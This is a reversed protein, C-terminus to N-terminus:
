DTQEFATSLHVPVSLEGDPENGEWTVTWEELHSRAWEDPTAAVPGDLALRDTEGDCTVVLDVALERDSEAPKVDVYHEITEGPQLSQFTEEVYIMENLRDGTAALQLEQIPEESVNRLNCVVKSYTDAVHTERGIGPDLRNAVAAGTGVDREVPALSQFRGDGGYEVTFPVVEDTDSLETEPAPVSGSWRVTEGPGLGEGHPDIDWGGVWTVDVGEVSLYDDTRNEVTGRVRVTRGSADVSARVVLPGDRVDVDMAGTETLHSGGATAAVPSLQSRGRRALAHARQYRREEGRDFSGLRFQEGDAALTLDDIQGETDVALYELFAETADPEDDAVARRLSVAPSAGAGATDGWSEQRGGGTQRDQGGRGGASQGRPGHGRASGGARKDRGGPATAAAFSNGLSLDHTDEVGAGDLRARLVNGDLGVAVSGPIAVSLTWTAGPSVDVGREVPGADGVGLLVLTDAVETETPNEVTVDVFLFSEEVTPEVSMTVSGATASPSATAVTTGTDDVVTREVSEGPTYRETVEVRSTEGPAVAGVHLDDERVRLEQLVEGENHVFLTAHVTSGDVRDVTLEAAVSEEPPDPRDIAISESALAVGDVSVRVEATEVDEVDTVEFEATTSGGAPLDATASRRATTVGEVALTVTASGATEAENTLEVALPEGPGIADVPLAATVADVDVSRRHVSLTDERHVCVLDGNRTPYVSGPPLGDVSEYKGDSQVALLGDATRVLLTEDGRPTVQTPRIETRWNVTGSEPDVGVLQDSKLAAVVTGGTGGVGTLASGLDADFVQEGGADVGTVFSWAGLLFRGDAAVFSVDGAVDAYPRDVTWRRSGSEGDVGVLNRETLVCVVDAEPLAAIGEVGEDALDLSWVRSGSGEPSLALVADATLAYVRGGLAVDVPEGEVQLTTRDTGRVYTLEGDGVLAVDDIGGDSATVSPLEFAAVEAYGSV